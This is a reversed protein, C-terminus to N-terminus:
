CANKLTDLHAIIPREGRVQVTQSRLCAHDLPMVMREEESVNHGLLAGSELTQRDM